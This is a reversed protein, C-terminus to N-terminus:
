KRVEVMQNRKNLKVLLGIYIYQRVHEILGVEQGIRITVNEDKGQSSNLFTNCNIHASTHTHTHTHARAHTRTHTHQRKYVDLHTYSVPVVIHTYKRYCKLSNMYQIKHQKSLLLETYINSSRHLM